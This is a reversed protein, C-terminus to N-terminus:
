ACLFQMFVVPIAVSYRFVGSYGNRTSVDDAVNRPGRRRGWPGPHGQLHLRVSSIAIASGLIRPYSSKVKSGLNGNKGWHAGHSCEVRGGGGCLFTTYASPHTTTM